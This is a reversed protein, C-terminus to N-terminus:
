CFYLIVNETAAMKFFPQFSYDTGVKKSTVLPIDTLHTWQVFHYWERFRWVGTTKFTRLLVQLVTRFQLRSVIKPCVGFQVAVVHQTLGAELFGVARARDLNSLKTMHEVLENCSFDTCILWLVVNHVSERGLPDVTVVHSLCIRHPTAHFFIFLVVHEDSLLSWLRTDNQSIPFNGGRRFNTTALCRAYWSM